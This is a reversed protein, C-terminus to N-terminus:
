AAIPRLQYGEAELADHLAQEDLSAQMTIKVSKKQADVAVREVGSISTLAAHVRRVCSGCHMGEVYFEKSTNMISNEKQSLTTECEQLRVWWARM